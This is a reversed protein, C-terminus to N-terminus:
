KSGVIVNITNPMIQGSVADPLGDKVITVRVDGMGIIAPERIAGALASAVSELDPAAQIEIHDAITMGESPRGDIPQLGVAPFPKWDWGYARLVDAIDLAFDWPEAEPNAYAIFAVPSFPKIAKAIRDKQEPSLKRHALLQEITRQQSLITNQQARSINEDIVFL